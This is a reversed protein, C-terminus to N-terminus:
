SDRRRQSTGLTAPSAYQIPTEGQVQQRECLEDYEHSLTTYDTDPANEPASTSLAPTQMMHIFVQLPSEFANNTKNKIVVQPTNLYETVLGQVDTGKLNKVVDLNTCCGM